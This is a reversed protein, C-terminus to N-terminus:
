RSPPSSKIATSGSPGGDPQAREMKNTPCQTMHFLPMLCKLVIKDHDNAVMRALEVGTDLKATHGIAIVLVWRILLVRLFHGHVVMQHLSQQTPKHMGIIACLVFSATDQMVLRAAHSRSRVRRIGSNVAASFSNSPPEGHLDRFVRM